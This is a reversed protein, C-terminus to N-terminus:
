KIQPAKANVIDVLEPGSPIIGSPRLPFLNGFYDKRWARADCTKIVEPIEMFRQRWCWINPFQWLPKQSCGFLPMYIEEWRILTPFLRIDAITLQDGFLWASKNSLKNEIKELSEFLANSAKIYADQNRAFGCKYVGDNVTKQIVTNWENIEEKFKEPLLDHQKTKTPWKCLIEILQSSENGLLKPKQNNKNSPDILVPVTSRLKTKGGSVKYVEDLYNCNLWPPDLKWKGEEPSPIAQILNITADLNRLLYVLWTRHAWPCSKGIILTPKQYNLRGDLEESSMTTAEQHQSIPRQYNGEKDSPALANMLCNWQWKWCYRATKVVSGPISM